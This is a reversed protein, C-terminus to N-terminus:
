RLQCRYLVLHLDRFGCHLQTQLWYNMESKLRRESGAFTNREYFVWELLAKYPDTAKPVPVQYSTTSGRRTICASKACFQRAVHYILTAM